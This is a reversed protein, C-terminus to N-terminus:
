WTAHAQLLCLVPPELVANPAVFRWGRSSGCCCCTHRCTSNGSSAQLAHRMLFWGRGFLCSSSSSSRSGSIGSLLPVPLMDTVCICTRCGCVRRGTSRSSGRARCARTGAHLAPPQQCAPRHATAMPVIMGTVPQASTSNHTTIPRLQQQRLVVTHLLCPIAPLCLLPLPLLLAHRLELAHVQWPGHRECAAAAYRGAQPGHLLPHATTHSLRIGDAQRRDATPERTDQLASLSASRLVGPKWRSRM